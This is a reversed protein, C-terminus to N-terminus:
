IGGEMFGGKDFTLAYNFKLCFCFNNGSGQKRFSNYLLSIHVSKHKIAPDTKPGDQPDSVSGDLHIRFPDTNFTGFRIRVPDIKVPSLSIHVSKVFRM